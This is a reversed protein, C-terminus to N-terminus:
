LRSWDFDVMHVTDVRNYFLPSWFNPTFSHNLNAGLHWGAVNPCQMNSSFQFDQESPIQLIDSQIVNFSM